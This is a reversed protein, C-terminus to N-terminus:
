KQETALGRWFPESYVDNLCMSNRIRSGDTPNLWAYDAWRKGDFWHYAFPYPRVAEAMQSFFGVEYSGARVPKVNGPFWVTRQESM